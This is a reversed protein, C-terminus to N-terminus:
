APRTTAAIKAEWRHASLLQGVLGEPFQVASKVDDRQLFHGIFAFDAEIVDVVSGMHGQGLALLARAVEAVTEARRALCRRPDDCQCRARMLAAALHALNYCENAVDKAIARSRIKQLGESCGSTVLRMGRAMLSVSSSWETVCPQNRNKLDTFLTKMCRGHWESVDGDSALVTMDRASLLLQVCPLESSCSLIAIAQKLEATFWAPCSGVCIESLCSVLAAAGVVVDRSIPDKQANAVADKLIKVATHVFLAHHSDSTNSLQHAFEPMWSPSAGAIAVFLNMAKLCAKATTAANVARLAYTLASVTRRAAPLDLLLAIQAGPLVGRAAAITRASADLSAGRASSRGAAEPVRAVPPFAATPSGGESRHVKLLKPSAPSHPASQHVSIVFDWLSQECDVIARRCMSEGRALEGLLTNSPAPPRVPPADAPRLDDRSAVSPMWSPTAVPTQPASGRGTFLTRKPLLQDNSTTPRLADARLSM